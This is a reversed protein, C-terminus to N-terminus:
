KQITRENIKRLYAFNTEITKNENLLQLAYYPNEFNEFCISKIYKYDIPEWKENSKNKIKYMKLGM